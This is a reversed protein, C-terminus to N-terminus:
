IVLGSEVADNYFQKVTEISYEKLDKNALKRKKLIDHPITIIDAGCNEAKIISFVERTSAWLLKANSSKSFIRKKAWEFHYSADIMTDEIRGAFISVIGTGSGLANIAHDIQNLTFVATINIKINKSVLTSIVDSTFEGNTNIIPIKVFINDGGWKSIEEGQSVMELLNDTIVEFSFPKETVIKMAEIAFNKYDVIGSKKLLSPNTTFGNIESDLNLKRISSLDAGDAYIKIM